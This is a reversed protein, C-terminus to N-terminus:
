DSFTSQLFEVPEVMFVFELPGGQVMMISASYRGEATPGDMLMAVGTTTSEFAGQGAAVTQLGAPPKTGRIRPTTSEGTQTGM